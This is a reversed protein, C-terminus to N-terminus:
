QESKPPVVKEVPAFREAPKDSALTVAPKTPGSLDTQRKAAPTKPESIEGPLANNRIYKGSSEVSVPGTPTEKKVSEAKGYVLGPATGNRLQRSISENTKFASQAKAATGTLLIAFIILYPKM